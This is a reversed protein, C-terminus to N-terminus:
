PPCGRADSGRSPRARGPLCRSGAPPGPAPADRTHATAPAGDWPAGPWDRATRAPGSGPGPAAVRVRGQLDQRGQGPASAGVPRVLGPELDPPDLGLLAPEGLRDLGELRQFAGGRSARLDGLRPQIAGLGQDPEAAAVLGLGQEPREHGVRRLGQRRPRRECEHGREQLAALRGLRQRDAVLGQCPEALVRRGGGQEEARGLGRLLQALGVRRAGSEEPHGLGVRVVGPGVVGGEPGGPQGQLRAVMGGGPGHRRRERGPEGLAGEPGVGAQDLRPGGEGGVPGLVRDGDEGGREGLVLRARGGLLDLAVIEAQGEAGVALRGLGGLDEVGQGSRRRRRDRGIRLVHDALPVDLRPPEGLRDRRQLSVQGALGVSLDGVVGQGVQRLGPDLEALGVGGRLRELLEVRRKGFLLANGGVRSRRASAARFAPSRSRAASSNRSTISPASGLRAARALDPRPKASSSPPLASSAAPTNAARCSASDRRGARGPPPGPARGRARPPSSSRRPGPRRRAPRRPSGSSRAPRGPWGRGPGAGPRHRDGRRRPAPTDGAVDLVAGGGPPIASSAPSSATRASHPQARTSAPLAASASLTKM